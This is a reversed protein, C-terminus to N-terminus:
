QTRERKFDQEECLSFENIISQLRRLGIKLRDLEEDSLHDYNAHFTHLYQSGDHGYVTTSREAIGSAMLLLRKQGPKLRNFAARALSNKGSIIQHLERLLSRPADIQQNEMKM